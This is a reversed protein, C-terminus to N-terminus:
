VATLGGDICFTAGVIFGAAESALFLAAQAVEEPTGFRGIPYKAMKAHTAEVSDQAKIWHDLETGAIRCPCLRNVRIGFRTYDVALQRTLGIVAAKSACYAPMTPFGVLGAVSAMNIIVGGGQAKMLPIVARSCLFTGTVNVAMIREWAALSSTEIDAFEAIGANNVLVDVKGWREAIDDITTAIASADSVDTCSSILDIGAAHLQATAAEIREPKNDLLAIRAGEHGFLQAIALGIGAGAGTIVAVRGALQRTMIAM